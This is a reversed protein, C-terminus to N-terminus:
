KSLERFKNIFFRPSWGKGLLSLLTDGITTGIGVWPILSMIPTIIKYPLTDRLKYICNQQFCAAHYLSLFEEPNFKSSDSNSQRIWNRFTIGDKSNRIKLIEKFTLKYQTVLTSLDIIKEFNVISEFAPVVNEDSLTAKYAQIRRSILSFLFDDQTLSNINLDAALSCFYNSYFLRNYKYTNSYIEDVREEPQNLGLLNLMEQNQLDDNSSNIIKEIFRSTNQFQYCSDEFLKEVSHPIIKRREPFGAHGELGKDTMFVMHSTDPDYNNIFRFSETNIPILIKNELLEKLVPLEILTYLYILDDKTIYVKDFLLLPEIVKVYSLADNPKKEPYLGSSTKFYVLKGSTLRYQVFYIHNINRHAIYPILIKSPSPLSAVM